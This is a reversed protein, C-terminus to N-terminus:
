CFHNGKSSNEDDWNRFMPGLPEIESCSEEMWGEERSCRM